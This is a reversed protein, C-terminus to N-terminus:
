LRHKILVEKSPPVLRLRSKELDKPDLYGDKDTDLRDFEEEMFGMWEKKSVRGDKDRDMLLLWQKAAAERGAATSMKESPPPTPNDKQAEAPGVMVGVALLAAIVWIVLVIKWKASM